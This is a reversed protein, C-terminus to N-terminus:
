KTTFTTTDINELLEIVRDLRTVIDDMKEVFPAVLGEVDVGLM